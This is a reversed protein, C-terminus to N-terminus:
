SCLRKGVWSLYDDQNVAQVVIPMFGHNVGCLESCQGYFVGERKVFLFVQNLRGPCADVKIDLSPVAWSHLVDASTVLVRIHTNTPVFLRNDVELLRFVKGAKGTSHASPIVLDDDAILYSDFNIRQREVDEKDDQSGNILDLILNIEEKLKKNKSSDDEIISPLLKYLLNRVGNVDTEELTEVLEKFTQLIEIFLDTQSATIEKDEISSLIERIDEHSKSLGEIAKCSGNNSDTSDPSGVGSSNGSNEFSNGASDSIMKNLSIDDFNNSNENIDRILVESISKINDLQAQSKLLGTYIKIGLLNPNLKIDFLDCDSLLNNALEINSHINAVASNYSFWHTDWLEQDLINYSKVLHNEHTALLSLSKTLKDFMDNYNDEALNLEEKIRKLCVNSYRSYLDIHDDNIIPDELNFNSMKNEEQLKSLDLSAKARVANYLKNTKFSDDKYFDLEIEKNFSELVLIKVKNLAEKVQNVNLLSLNDEKLELSKLLLASKEIDIELLQEIKDNLNLEAKELANKAAELEM